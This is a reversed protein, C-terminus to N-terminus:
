VSFGGIIVTADPRFRTNSQFLSITVAIKPRSIANSQSVASLKAMKSEPCRGIILSVSANLPRKASKFQLYSRPWKRYYSFVICVDSNYFFTYFGCIFNRQRLLFVFFLHFHPPLPRSLIEKSLCLLPCIKM